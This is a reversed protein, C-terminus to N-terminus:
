WSQAPKGPPFLDGFIRDYEPPDFPKLGSNSYITVEGFRAKGDIEYFDVRCFPMRKGIEEAVSIMRAFDVPPERDPADSSPSLKVPVRNWQRDYVAAKRDSYRDDTLSIFEVRGGFTYLKFDTPPVGDGLFPEVLVQPKVKRYAWEGLRIGYARGLSIELKAEIKDWDADEPTLVFINEATSHNPKIVYPIPWNRAERPPLRDGSYLTPTVIDAGFNDAILQKVGVKDIFMPLLPSRWTLKAVQIKESFTVPAFLNPYRGFKKRYKKMIHFLDVLWNM